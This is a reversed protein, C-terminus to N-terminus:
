VKRENEDSKPQKRFIEGLKEPSLVSQTAERNSQQISTYIEKRYVQVQKPAQIGLKITDGESALVIVEIQDGIMISEGKKRTLVLM